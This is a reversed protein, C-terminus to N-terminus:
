ARGMRKGNEYWAVGVFRGDKGVGKERMGWEDGEGEWGRVGGVCGVM